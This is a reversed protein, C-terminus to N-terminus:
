PQSNGRANFSSRFIVQGKGDLGELTSIMHDGSRMFLLTANIVEVETVQNDAWTVRVTVIEKNNVSGYLQTYGPDRPKEGSSHGAVVELDQLDQEPPTEHCGGGGNASIWGYFRRLTQYTYLCSVPVMNPRLGEFSLLVISQSDNVALSQRVELTDQNVTVGATTQELLMKIAAAEPSVAIGSCASLPLLLSFVSLVKILKILM